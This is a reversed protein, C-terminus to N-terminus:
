CGINEYRAVAKDEELRPSIRFPSGVRDNVFGITRNCYALMNRLALWGKCDSRRAYAVPSFFIRQLSIPLDYSKPISLQTNSDSWCLLRNDRAFCKRYVRVMDQQLVVDIFWRSGLARKQCVQVIEIM